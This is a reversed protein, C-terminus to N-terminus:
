GPEIGRNYSEKVFENIVLNEFLGGRLFHTTIQEANQIDLLSCALGTDYFYLKTIISISIYFCRSTLHISPIMKTQM